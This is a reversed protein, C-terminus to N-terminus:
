RRYVGDGRVKIKWDARATGADWPTQTLRCKTAAGDTIQETAPLQKFYRFNSLVVRNDIYFAFDRIVQSTLRRPMKGKAAYAGCIAIKGQYEVAKAGVVMEGFSEGTFNLNMVHYRGDLFVGSDAQAGTSATLCLACIALAKKMM